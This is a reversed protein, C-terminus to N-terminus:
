RMRALKRVESLKNSLSQVIGANEPSDAINVTEELVNRHDYLEIAVVSDPNRNKQWSVLRYDCTRLSYGM